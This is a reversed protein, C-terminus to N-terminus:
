TPFPRPSSMLTRQRPRGDEREAKAGEEEDGDREEEDDDGDACAICDATARETIAWTRVGCGAGRASEEGRM